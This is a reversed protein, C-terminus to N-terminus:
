VGVQVVTEMTELEEEAKEGGGLRTTVAAAAVVVVVVVAVVVVVVAAVLVVMEVLLGKEDMEVAGGAERVKAKTEKPLEDRKKSLIGRRKRTTAPGEAAARYGIEEGLVECDGSGCRRRYVEQYEETGRHM